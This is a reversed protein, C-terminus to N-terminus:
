GKRRKNSKRGSEGGGKSGGEGGAQVPKPAVKLKIGGAQLLRQLEELEVPAEFHMKASKRDSALEIEGRTFPVGGPPPGDVIAPPM